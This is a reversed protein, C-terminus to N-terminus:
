GKRTVPELHVKRREEHFRKCRQAGLAKASHFFNAQNELKVQM